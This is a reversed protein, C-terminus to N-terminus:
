FEERRLKRLDERPAAPATMAAGRNTRASVSPFVALAAAFERMPMPNMPMPRIESPWTREKGPIFCTWGIATQSTFSPAKCFATLVSLPLPKESMRAVVRKSSTREWGSTSAVLESGVAADDRADWEPRFWFGEEVRGQELLERYLRTGPYPVLHAFQGVQIKNRMAFDLTDSFVSEDDADFGFVFAGVAAIVLMRKM